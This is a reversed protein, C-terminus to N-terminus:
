VEHIPPPPSHDAGLAQVFAPDLRAYRELRGRMDAGIDHAELQERTWDEPLASAKVFQALNFSARNLTDNRAGETATELAALLDDKVHRALAEAARGSAALSIWVTEESADTREANVALSATVTAKGNRTEREVPDAGLRGYISVQIM